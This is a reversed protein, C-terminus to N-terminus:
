PIEETELEDHVDPMGTQDAWHRLTKLLATGEEAPVAHRGLSMGALHIEFSRIDGEPLTASLYALALLGPAVEVLYAYAGVEPPTQVQWLRCWRGAVTMGTALPVAQATPGSFYCLGLARALIAASPPAGSGALPEIQWRGMRLRKVKNRTTLAPTAVMRFGSEVAAPAERLRVKLRYDLRAEEAGGAALPLVQLALVFISSFLRM